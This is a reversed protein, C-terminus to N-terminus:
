RKSLFGTRGLGRAATGEIVKQIQILTEIRRSKRGNFALAMGIVIIVLIYLTVTPILPIKSIFGKSSFESFTSEQKSYPHDKRFEIDDSIENAGEFILNDSVQENQLVNNQNSVIVRPLSNERLESVRKHQIGNVFNNEM